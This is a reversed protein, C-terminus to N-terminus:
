LARPHFEFESPSSLMSHDTYSEPEGPRLPSTSLASHSALSASLLSAETYSNPPSPFINPSDFQSTSSSTHLRTQSGAKRSPTRLVGDASLVRTPGTTPARPTRTNSRSVVRPLPRTPPPHAFRMESTHTTDSIITNDASVSRTTTALEHARPIELVTGPMMNRCARTGFAVTLVAAILTTGLALPGSPPARSQIILATAATLTTGALHLVNATYILHATPSDRTRHHRIKLLSLILATLLFITFSANGLPLWPVTALIRCNSGFPRTPAPVARYQTALAIWCGTVAVVLGVLARRVTWNDAWLLSTRVAFIVASGTVVLVLGAQSISAAAQCHGTQTTGLFLVPFIALIGGYRMALFGYPLITNWVSRRYLRIEDPLLTAYEWLIMALAVSATIAFALQAETDANFPISKADESNLASFDLFRTPHPADM